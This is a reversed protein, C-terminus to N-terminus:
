GRGEILQRATGLAEASRQRQGLARRSEQAELSPIRDCVSAYLDSIQTVGRRTTTYDYKELKVKRELIMANRIGRNVVAVEVSPDATPYRVRRWRDGPVRSDLLAVCWVRKSCSYAQRGVLRVVPDMAVM